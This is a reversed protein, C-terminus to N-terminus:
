ETASVVTELAACYGRISSLCKKLVEPKVDRQGNHVVNNRVEIATRCGEVIATPLLAEDIIVPLLFAISGSFGMHQVQKALSAGEMRNKLKHGYLNEAHPSQIFRQLASELAAIGELLAGRNHGLSKIEEAGTFLEKYRPPRKREEVFARLESWTDKNIHRSTDLVITIPERNASRPAFLLWLEGAIPVRCDFRLCQEYTSNRVATETVWYQGLCSRVYQVIRNYTDVILHVMKTALQQHENELTEDIERDDQKSEIYKKLTETVKTVTVIGLAYQAEMPTWYKTDPFQTITPQITSKDFWIECTLDEKEVKVANERDEPLWSDFTIGGSARERMDGDRVVPVKFRITLTTM